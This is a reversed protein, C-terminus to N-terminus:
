APQAKTQSARGPKGLWGRVAMAEAVKQVAVMYAAQRMDLDRGRKRMAAVEYFGRVMIKELRRNM